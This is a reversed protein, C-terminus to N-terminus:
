IQRLKNIIYNMLEQKSEQEVKFISTKYDLVQCSFGINIATELKDGTLM